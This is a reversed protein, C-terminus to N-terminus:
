KHGFWFKLKEAGDEETSDDLRCFGFRELQVIDGVKISRMWEEGLGERSSGDDMLVEVKILSKSVPLWHMIGSGEKKYKDYELSDFVFKGKKKRFNLCDMLRYLKGEKMSDIDNRALMFEDKTNFRRGGKRSDPHLDLEIERAPAGEVKIKVPDGVFFHRNAKPDIIEKNFANLAKFFDDQSVKKDALSVGVDLAYKLFAGPQYGRRKLALLFPLRIDDWGSFEGKSIKAKTKSCSIELDTFNIRGVFLTQPVHWGMAKQIYEQRKANDAHDKARLIHTMGGEHDDIAVSFNMLPWVRYKKGHRPHEDENIRMLPFDRMAPNKHQMDTKFRMVAEGENFGKFMREWLAINKKTGNSRCPCEEMKASIKRFDDASCTCIYAHGKNLMSLAHSYYLDIRDSQVIVESVSNGTLWRADEPIQDYSIPDINSSNTDAIRIVLKGGYKKCYESNLGLVYAHGLHLPGSPSPEFRMTVRRGFDKLEPLCKKEEKRKELMEPAASKLESEIRDKSLKNVEAVVLRIEAMVEGARTKLDPKEGLVKGIINSPDAKGYKFANQLAYKRMIQKVSSDM